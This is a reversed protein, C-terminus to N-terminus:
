ESKQKQPKGGEVFDQCFPNNRNPKPSSSQRAKTIKLSSEDKTMGEEKLNVFGYNSLKQHSSIEL